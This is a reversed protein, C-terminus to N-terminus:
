IESGALRWSPIAWLAPNGMKQITAGRYICLGGRWRDGCAEAVRRLGSFDSPVVQGRNKIEVGILGGAARIILDTELGSRTRYFFLNADPAATQVWKWIEGVVYNEYQAGTLSEFMGTLQRLLGMDVWYLKPTKVAASTLNEHFPQLLIAQYSRRLYELYRRSTDVSVGADRSLESYNLLQGSRLASLRQFKKFPELDDIRALDALDRELYTYEYSRLWERRNAESLKLLEPMGGWRLLYDEGECVQAKYEPLLVGPVGSLAEEVGQRLIGDLLPPRLADGQEDATLESLMLPWLEYVFARGALSERVNKMLMIQSSGLLVSFNLSEQDYAYKVKEFIAPEKQAEDLVAPGIDRTWNFTSVARVTDRNEPADLNVYRLMPYAQKSLTTKGTQRAGTIIVLRRDSPKSLRNALFRRKM